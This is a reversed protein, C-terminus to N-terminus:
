DALEATVLSVQADPVWGKEFRVTVTREKGPLVLHPSLVSTDMGANQVPITDEDTGSVAVLIAAGLGADYTVGAQM